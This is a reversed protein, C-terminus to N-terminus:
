LCCWRHEACHEVLWWVKLGRCREVNLLKVPVTVTVETDNAVRLFDIHLPQDSVPHFQVAKPLVQQQKQGGIELQLVKAYFGVKNLRKMVERPDIAIGEPTNGGGYVIGPIKVLGACPVRM